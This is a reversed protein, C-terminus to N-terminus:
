TSKRLWETGTEAGRARLTQAYAPTSTVKYLAAQLRAVFAPPTAAPAVVTYGFNLNSEPYGLEIMTSIDLLASARETM